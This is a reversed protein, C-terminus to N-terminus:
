AFRRAVHRRRARIEKRRQDPGARATGEPLERELDAFAVRRLRPAPCAPADQCRYIIRGEARGVPDLWNAVGPDRLSIVARFRGDADLRAQRASLSSSHNEYDLEEHWFNGLQVSWYHAMPPELEFILADEPGIRYYGLGYWTRPAGAQSEMSLPPQMRNPERPSAGQELLAASHAEFYSAVADLERAVGEPTPHPPPGVDELMEIWFRAPEEREWDYFYQRVLLRSSGPPLELWNGAAPKASLLLEFSGDPEVRLGGQDLYAVGANGATVQFSLYHASGRTGRIRYSCDDRLPTEHAKADSCLTGWRRVRDELLDLHPREPDSNGLVVLVSHALQQALYRYGEARVAGSDPVADRLVLDGARTLRECFRRWAASVDASGDGV